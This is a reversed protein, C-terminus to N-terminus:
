GVARADCLVEGSAVRVRRSGDDDVAYQWGLDREPGLDRGLRLARQVPDEVAAAHVGIAPGAEGVDAGIEFSQRLHESGPREIDVDRIRHGARRLRDRESLRVHRHRDAEQEVVGARDCQYRQEHVRGRVAIERREGGFKM